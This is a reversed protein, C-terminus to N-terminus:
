EKKKNADKNAKEKETIYSRTNEILSNLINFKAARLALADNFIDVLEQDSLSRIQSSLIKKAEDQNIAM